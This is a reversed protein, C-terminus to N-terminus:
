LLAGRKRARANPKQNCRFRSHQIIVCISDLSFVPSLQQLMGEMGTAHHVATSRPPVTARLTEGWSLSVEAKKPTAHDLVVHADATAGGQDKEASQSWAARNSSDAAKEQEPTLVKTHTDVEPELVQTRAEVQPASEKPQAETPAVVQSQSQSEKPPASVKAPAEAKAPTESRPAEQTQPQAQVVESAQQVV